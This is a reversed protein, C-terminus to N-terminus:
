SKASFSNSSKLGAWSEELKLFPIPNSRGYEIGWVIKIMIIMSIQLLHARM